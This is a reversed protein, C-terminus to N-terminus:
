PKWTSWSPGPHYGPRIVLVVLGTLAAALIIGLATYAVAFRAGYRTPAEMLPLVNPPPATASVDAAGPEATTVGETPTIAEPESNVRATRPPVQRPRRKARGADMGDDALDGRGDL